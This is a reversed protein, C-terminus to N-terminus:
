QGGGDGVEAWLQKIATECVDYGFGRRV